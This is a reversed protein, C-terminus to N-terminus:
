DELYDLAILVVIEVTYTLFSYSVSLNRLKILSVCGPNSHLDMSAM